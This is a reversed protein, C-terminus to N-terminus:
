GFNVYDALASSMNNQETASLVYAEGDEMEQAMLAGADNLPLPPLGNDGDLGVPIAPLETPHKTTEQAAAAM